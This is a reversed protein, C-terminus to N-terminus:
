ALHGSRPRGRPPRVGSVVLWGVLALIAEELPQALNAPGGPQAARRAQPEWLDLLKCLLAGRGSAETDAHEYPGRRDRVDAAWARWRAFTADAPSVPLRLQAQM